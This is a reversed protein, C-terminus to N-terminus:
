DPDAGGIEKVEGLTDGTSTEVNKGILKSVRHKDSEDSKMSSGPQEGFVDASQASNTRAAEARAHCRVDM